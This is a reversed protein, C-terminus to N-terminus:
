LCLAHKKWNNGNNRCDNSVKQPELKLEFIYPIM